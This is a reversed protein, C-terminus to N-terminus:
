DIKLPKWKVSNKIIDIESALDMLEKPAKDSEYRVYLTDGITKSYTLVTSPLDSYGTLYEEKFTDWKLNNALNQLKVMEDSDLVSSFNGDPDNFRRADLKLQGNGFVEVTYIPCQGFCPTKDMALYFHNNNTTKTTCTKKSCSVVLFLLISLFGIFKM